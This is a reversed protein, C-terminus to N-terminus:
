GGLEKLADLVKQMEKNAKFRTQATAINAAVIAVTAVILKHKFGMMYM